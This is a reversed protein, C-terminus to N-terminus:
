DVVIKNYDFLLHYISFEDNTGYNRKHKSLYSAEFDPHITHPSLTSVTTIAGDQSELANKIGESVSTHTFTRNEIFAIQGEAFLRYTNFPRTAFKIIDKVYENYDKTTSIRKCEIALRIEDNTTNTLFKSLSRTKVSIDIFDDAPINDITYTQNEEKAFSIEITKTSFDLNNYYIKYQTKSLYDDVLGNRLFSEKKLKGKKSYSYTKNENCMCQYCYIIYNMILGVQVHISKELKNSKFKSADLKNM